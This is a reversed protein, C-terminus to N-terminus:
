LVSQLPSKESIAEILIEGDTVSFNEHIKGSTSLIPIIGDNAEPSTSIM